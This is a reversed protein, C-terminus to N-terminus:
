RHKNDVPKRMVFNKRTVGVPVPGKETIYSGKTALEYLADDHLYLLDPHRSELASLFQDFQQLTSTRFDRVTSHFNISHISVLAPIEQAFAKEACKVCAEVSFSDDVAPEFEVNRFTHLLGFRDIHPPVFAGPGNQAVRVGHQAWARHTADNARYGPACASRPLTSFMKAFGGVAEGILTRQEDPPMMREGEPKGPDWYEYGIWPMRWHIYPTGARWLTHVLAARDSHNSLSREVASRNFHTTAHLAPHFVGDAIGRRYAAVLGPRSWGAPLGDALPLLHIRGFSNESMRAFDLNAVSFNMGLSPSRSDSDRHKKLIASVADVDDSTELTYFDYAREGLSVGASRLQDLGERDRLGVRGWDDSQFVVIPRDFYFGERPFVNRIRQWIKQRYSLTGGANVRVGRM